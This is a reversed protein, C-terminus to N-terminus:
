SASEVALRDPRAIRWFVYGGLAGAILGAVIAFGYGANGWAFALGLAGGGILGVLVYGLVQTRGIRGLVTHTALGLIAAAVLGCVSSVLGTLLLATPLSGVMWPAVFHM